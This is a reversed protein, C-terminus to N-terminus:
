SPGKRGKSALVPLHDSGIADPLVELDLSDLGKHVALDITSPHHSSCDPIHTPEDPGEVDYGSRQADRYLSIGAPNSSRCGWAPHHANWALAPSTNLLQRVEGLDLTSNCPRYIAVLRTPKANIQIEVGLSQFSQTDLNPLPQFVLSRRVAVLLGRQPFEATTDLRLIHYGPLSSSFASHLHTENILAVDISVGPTGTSRGSNSLCQM